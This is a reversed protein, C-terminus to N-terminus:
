HITWQYSIPEVHYDILGSANLYSHPFDHRYWIFIESCQVARNQHNIMFEQSAFNEEALSLEKDINQPSYFAIPPCSISGCNLAFHIRPDFTNVMLKLKPDGESFQLSKGKKRESNKRLIGHEIDDLSFDIGGINVTLASFFKEVEWVSKKLQHRIIFYNTLGNYINVWFAKKLNDQSLSHLDFSSLESVRKNLDDM